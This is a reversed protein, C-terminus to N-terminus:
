GPPDPPPPTIRAKLASLLDSLDPPIADHAVQWDAVTKALDADFEAKSPRYSRPAITRNFIRNGIERVIEKGAFEVRWGGDAILRASRAHMRLLLRHIHPETMTASKRPLERFWDSHRIHDFATAEDKVPPTTPDNVFHDRFRDRILAVVDRCAAWWCRRTAEAVLFADIEAVTRRHTNYRCGELAATHLLYNEIEHVPLIFTRFARGPVLWDVRNSRHYDRDILGFVNRFGADEADRIIARVGDHGGGILFKVAPDDWLADLYARTLPDEVWLNIPGNYLAERGVDSPM